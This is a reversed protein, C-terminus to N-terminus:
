IDNISIFRDISIPELCRLEYDVDSECKLGNINVKIEQGALVGIKGRSM